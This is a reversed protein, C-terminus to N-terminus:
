KDYHIIDGVSCTFKPNDVIVWLVPTDIDEPRYLKFYGDTFIIAINPKVDAIRELVPKINTGGGGVFKCDHLTDDQLFVQHEKLEIDFCTITLKKPNLKEKISIVESLQKVFDEYTISGSTDFFVEISEIAESYLNPMYIDEGIYRRSPRKYSYDERSFSDMYNQLLTFWDLKPNVISEYLRQVDSPLYGYQSALQAQVTAKCIIDTVRKELQDLNSAPVVIDILDPKSPKKNPDKLLAEYVQETSMNTYKEDLYAGEISEFGANVLLLNIVYDAAINFTEYNVDPINSARLVHNLAVHWAEHALLFVCQKLPLSNFFDPNISITIGDVCATNVERTFETKLSFLITSIFASNRMSLLTIKAQDLKDM